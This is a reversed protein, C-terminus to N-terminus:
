AFAGACFPTLLKSGMRRPWIPAIPRRPSCSTARKGSRVTITQTIWTLSAMSGAIHVGDAAGVRYYTHLAEEFSLPSAGTNSVVLEQGLEAGISVRHLLPVRAAM